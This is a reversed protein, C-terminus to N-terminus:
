STQGYLGTFCAAAFVAAVLKPHAGAAAVTTAPVTAALLSRRVRRNTEKATKLAKSQHKTNKNM